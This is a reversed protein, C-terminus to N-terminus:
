VQYFFIVFDIIEVCCLVNRHLPRQSLFIDGRTKLNKDLTVQLLFERKVNIPKKWQTVVRYSLFLLFDALIPAADNQKIPFEMM